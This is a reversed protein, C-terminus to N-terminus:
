NQRQFIYFDSWSSESPDAGERYKYRNEIRQLLSFEPRKASVWQTFSRFKIHADRCGQDDDPAYIIVLSRSSDFLLGMYKEYLSDNVLHFIVDISISLDGRPREMEFEGIELFCFNPRLAHQAKCLDVAKKSLDTGVYSDFEYLGLQHGDGCGLEVVKKVGYSKVLGNIVEAKFQALAGRSGSGSGLGKEYRAEWYDRESFRRGSDRSFSEKWVHGFRETMRRIAADNEGKSNVSWLSESQPIPWALEKNATGTARAVRGSLRVWFYFWVDDSYRCLRLALDVDFSGPDISRPPFIVGGGTTPFNSALARTDSIVKPWDSYHCVDDSSDCILRHVRHAVVNNPYKSISCVLEELWTPWYYLDDDATVVYSDPFKTLAPVLKKYSFWNATYEVSVIESDVLRRLGPHGLFLDKDEHSIVVFILDAKVTQSCLCLLTLYLSPFRQPYSTVSVILDGRLGHERKALPTNALVLRELFKLPSM